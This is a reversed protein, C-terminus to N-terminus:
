QPEKIRLWGSLHNFVHRSNSRFYPNLAAPQIDLDQQAENHQGQRISANAAELCGHVHEIVLALSRILVRPVDLSLVEAKDACM